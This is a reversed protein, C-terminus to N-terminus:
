EEQDKDHGVKCQWPEATIFKLPEVVNMVEKQRQKYENTEMVTSRNEIENRTNGHVRDVLQQAKQGIPLTTTDHHFLDATIYQFKGDGQARANLIM